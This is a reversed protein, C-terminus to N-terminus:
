PHYHESIRQLEVTKARAASGAARVVDILDRNRDILLRGCERADPGAVVADIEAQIVEIRRISETATRHAGVVVNILMRDADALADDRAALVAAAM